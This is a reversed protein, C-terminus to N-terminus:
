QKPILKVKQLDLLAGKVSGRPRITLHQHGKDLRVSGAKWSQYDDWGGTSKVTGELSDSATTLVLLNGSASPACAYQLEVSYQGARPVELTWTVHDGEHHWYGINQFAAEFRIERGFIMAATAPLVTEKDAKVEINRPDNGPFSKRTPLDAMLFTLLDTMGALDIKNEFQDPMFSKNSARVEEIQKRLLTKSQNESIQLVLSASSEDTVLGSLQIGSNLNVVVPLYKADIDASPDLVSRLLRKKSKNALAGLDPGTSSGILGMRHCAACNETFVRRGNELNGRGTTASEYKKMLQSVKHPPTIEFVQRFALSEEQTAVQLWQRRLDQGVWIRIEPQGSIQKLLFSRGASTSIWQALCSERVVPTSRKVRLFVQQWQDPFKEILLEGVAIQLEVAVSPHLFELFPDSKLKLAAAINALVKFAATRKDLPIEQLQGQAIGSQFIETLSHEVLATLRDGPWDNTLAIFRPDVLLDASAPQNKLLGDLMESWETASAHSLVSTLLDPDLYATVLQTRRTVIFERWTALSSERISSLIAYRLYPESHVKKWLSILHKTASPATCHALSWCAQRRVMSNPSASREILIQRVPEDDVFAEAFRIAQRQVLPDPDRLCSILTERDLRKLQVAISLIQSRAAASAAPLRELLEPILDTRQKWVLYHTALDRLTGNSGSAYRVLEQDSATKLNYGNNKTSRQGIRYVRGLKTGAFVDLDKQTSEPIWRPHEIVYRYMDVLWLCGDPGTKIQVPRFWQDTSTLFESDQENSARVAAPAGDSYRIVRRHILQNVPECTFANGYFTKGLKVDRYFGLGCASTPRGASGSLKFLVLDGNPFLTQTVPNQLPSVQTPPSPVHRNLKTLRDEIPYHRLLTSNDCGYWQDWDDRARGQQTRGTAPELQDTEPNWRFDRGRLDVIQGRRTKIMGGFLGCSGYIWGDLGLQLSNVRAHPNHTAFGSLWTETQDAVGDANTDEAYIVHPADCVLIGNKWTTVSTPFRLGSLFVTHSEFKGDADRDVLRKVVGQGKPEPDARDTEVPKAYDPMEVVWVEGELGFDIAVPDRIVPEAAVVSVPLRSSLKMCEISERPSKPLTGQTGDPAHFSSPLQRKAANIIKEELGTKLKAALGFYVIEAGGGYGGEMLLRESPIYSCFDNAYGHFWVRERDLVRRLAIAYDVCVEGALFVMGLSDGFQITQVPYDIQSRLSQKRKLIELQFKANYGSAGGLKALKRLESADPTKELPLPIQKLTASLDCVPIERRKKFVLKVENALELGLRDAAKEDGGTVGTNPNSDSGLGISIMGISDPFEREIAMAASGAWDGHIKNYSLTVCHCAYTALVARVKGALSEVFLVPLNHDVPGGRTRRNVAFSVNGSGWSLKAPFDQSLATKGAEVLKDELEQTYSAIHKQHAAPIPNSFITDSSGDLKPACHTHTFTIALNARPLKFERELRAHVRNALPFRIGLSDVTMMLVPPSNGRRIAIAKAFIKQGVGESETRRFGFGNLRVPYEPTIDVKALGVRFAEDGGCINASALFILCTVLQKQM